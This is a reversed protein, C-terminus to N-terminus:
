GVSKSLSLLLTSKPRRFLPPHYRTLFPRFSTHAKLDMALLSPSGEPWCYSGKEGRRWGKTPTAFNEEERTQEEEGGGLLLM